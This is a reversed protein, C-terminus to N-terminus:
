VEPTLARAPQGAEGREAAGAEARRLNRRLVTAATLAAGLAIVAGLAFAVRYGDNVAQLSDVGGHAGTYSAAITSLVALGLSGGVLRSTNILGSALGTEHPEVGQVSVIMVPVMACGFGATALAGGPLVVDLYPGRTPIEALVALGAAAVLLGGVLVTTAGFRRVLRPALTSATFVGLTLPLFALGAQLADLGRVDQLYLSVFFWLSFAASFMLMMVLNASRWLPKAFVRLPILPDAAVRGEYLAFLALLVVAGGAPALVGPATWGLTDTRVIAYVLATLGATVLAAGVLDFSRRVKTEAHPIMRRGALVVAVGVPVNVLFIAPWGLTQTLVGGLLAGSSGGLGAMAGWVGLARNRETGEAFSSAIIALTAPSIAAASVGQLARAGLLLTQSEALACFLSALAFLATSVLFVERRGFLDSARGGLMLFGAFTLTYGNVVWQLGTDSFGLDDQISPLAVNVIAVDLVVMFQALCVLVLLLDSTKGHERAPM